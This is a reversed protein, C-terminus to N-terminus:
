PNDRLGFGPAMKQIQYANWVELPIDGSSYGGTPAGPGLAVCRLAYTGDRSARLALIVTQFDANEILSATGSAALPSFRYGGAKWFLSLEAETPLAWYGQPEIHACFNTASQLDPPAGATEVPMLATWALRSRADYWGRAGDSTSISSLLDTLPEGITMTLTGAFRAALTKRFAERNDNRERQEAHHRESGLERLMIEIPFTFGGHVPIPFLLGLIAVALGSALLAQGLGRRRLSRFTWAAIAILILLFFGYFAILVIL